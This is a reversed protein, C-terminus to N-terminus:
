AKKSNIGTVGGLMGGALLSVCRLINKSDFSVAGRVAFSATLLILFYVAGLILGHLLGRSDIKKSLILAGIFVSLVSAALGLASATRDSVDAFFVVTSLILTFFVSAALSLLVCKTIKVFNLYFVERIYM